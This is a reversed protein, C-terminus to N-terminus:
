IVHQGAAPPSGQLNEAGSLCCGAARTWCKQDKGAMGRCVGVAAWQGHEKVGEGRARRSVKGSPNGGVRRPTCSWGTQPRPRIDGGGPHGAQTYHASPARPATGRLFPQSGCEGPLGAARGPHPDVARPGRRTGWGCSHPAAETQLAWSRCWCVGTLSTRKETKKLFSTSFVPSWPCVTPWDSSRNMRVAAIGTVLAICFPTELPWGCPETQSSVQAINERLSKPSSGFFAACVATPSLAGTFPWSEGPCYQTETCLLTGSM